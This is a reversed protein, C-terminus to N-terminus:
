AQTLGVQLNAIGNVVIIVVGWLVFPATMMLVTRRSQLLQRKGSQAAPAARFFSTMRKLRAMFGSSSSKNVLRGSASGYNIKIFSSARSLGATTSGGQSGKRNDSKGESAGGQRSNATAPGANSADTAQGEAAEEKVNQDLDDADNDEGDLDLQKTALGRVLGQPLLM